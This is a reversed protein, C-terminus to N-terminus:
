VARPMFRVHMEGADPATLCIRIDSDYGCWSIAEEVVGVEMADLFQFLGQYRVVCHQDSSEAIVARGHSQTVRYAKTTANMMARIDRGLVGFLVKGTLSALFTRYNIRGAERLGARLTPKGAKDALVLAIKMFDTIPYDKFAVYRADGVDAGFTRAADMLGRIFM